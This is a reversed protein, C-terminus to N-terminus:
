GVWTGLEALMQLGHPNMYTVSAGADMSLVINPNNEPFSALKELEAMSNTVARGQEELRVSADNLAEGLRELEISFQDVPIKRGHMEVLKGAFETYREVSLLPRRVLGGLFVLALLIIAAGNIATTHWFKTQAELIDRLNYTIRVWGLLDGLIVPQWILMRSKDFQLSAAADAPVQLPPEGYHVEPPKGDSRSVDGILKGQADCVQVAIVGPFNISRLLMQEISTYDRQLLFNAGTASIDNALVSAQMKMDSTIKGVVEKLMLYTFFTM